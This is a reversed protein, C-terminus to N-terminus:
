EIIQINEVKLPIFAPQYIETKEASLILANGEEQTKLTKMDCDAPLTVDKSIKSVKRNGYVDKAEIKAEVTVKQGNVKVLINASSQLLDLM